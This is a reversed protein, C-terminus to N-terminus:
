LLSQAVRCLGSFLGLSSGSGLLYFFTPDDPKPRKNLIHITLLSCILAGVLSLVELVLLLINVM